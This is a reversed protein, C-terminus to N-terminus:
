AAVPSTPTASCRSHSPTTVPISVRTTPESYVYIAGGMGTAHNDDILCSEFSMTEFGLTRVGGGAGATQNGNIRVGRFQVDGTTNDVYVGGGGSSAVGDHITCIIIRPSRDGRVAVNGGWAATGSGFDCGYFTGTSSYIYANGGQSAATNGVFECMGVVPNADTAVGIGGGATSASNGAFEVHMIQPTVPKGPSGMIFMGGGIGTSNNSIVRCESVLPWTAAPDVTADAIIRVGAGLVDRGGSITFGSLGTHALPRSISVVSHINDGHIETYWPGADSELMVTGPVELPFTEGAQYLGPGAHVTGNAMAQTLAFTLTRYPADTSGDGTIDNGTV